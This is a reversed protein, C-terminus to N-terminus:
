NTLPTGFQYHSLGELIGGAYHNQAFYVQEQGRLFELEASHNGVVVALTDGVLMESDNGSDGAVLFQKLPLGWKYALYRIAHGKSARVPLIDLFEQHSYIVQAHLNLQNLRACIQEVSPATNPDVLYSIKFERQNEPTQLQLGPLTAMVNLIDDRRWLHRIHNSWGVDPMLDAGYNIESGVSTILVDPIPVRHKKLIDLATHLPRGTAIGFVLDHKNQRLWNVLVDLNKQDGLLTNDIDSILAKKALPMASKGVNFAIAQQRRMRKRDRHLIQRVEKMYKEVHGQWSYHRKVNIVGNKAWARRQHKNSLAQYLADAIADSDLTNVLLGNRCNAVIDRPGGDDPAVFPLGSAAAEILTLGFPETLAANIFIGSRKAAYRYLEPIAEQSIDKPIAVKGWLDYRDIDLLLANLVKQQSKEMSKIDDRTGAVIVLNALQQLKHHEGYAALLGKLNKRLDPRCISLIIPKDPVTLFRDIAAKLKEDISDRKPPSFRSTDIGPPIVRCRRCDHNRYMGYQDDIEQKTSTVILSAKQIVDEEVAIRHEFNFQREITEAKRGDSLLRERKPRGLSHGTYVFPIGLLTSLQSGVYGADAYHAHILDPLRGQQRLYHLSKDVMQDLHPWLQEKRIYKKPGCALRVICARASIHELPKDYDNPLSADEIRRTLLDVKEVAAHESLAKALEIVYKTQGGTDSDRGLELDESRILGHVSIMLIYLASETQQTGQGKM